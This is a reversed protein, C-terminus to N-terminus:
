KKMELYNLVYLETTSIRKNPLLKTDTFTIKVIESDKLLVAHTVLTNDYWAYYGSYGLSKFEEKNIFPAVNAGIFQTLFANKAEEVSSFFTTSVILNNTEITYGSLMTPTAIPSPSVNASISGPFSTFYAFIVAVVLTLGNGILWYIREM